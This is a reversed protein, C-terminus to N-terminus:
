TKSPTYQHVNQMYNQSMSDVNKSYMNCERQSVMRSCWRKPRAVTSQLQIQSLFSLTVSNANSGVMQNIWRLLKSLMLHYLLMPWPNILFSFHRNVQIHSSLSKLPMKWKPWFNIPTGGHMGKPDLIFSRWQIMSSTALNNLTSSIVTRLTSSHLSMFSDAAVKKGCYNNMREFGPVAHNKMLMFDVKM